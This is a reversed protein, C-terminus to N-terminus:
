GNQPVELLSPNDWINGIVEFSFEMTMAWGISSVDFDGYGGDPEYSYCCGSNDWEVICINDIEGNPNIVQCIDGQYIEKDHVDPLGIFQGVTEPDVQEWEGRHWYRSIWATGNKEIVLWGYTWGGDRVTKGRFKIESKDAM